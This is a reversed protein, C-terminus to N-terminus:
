DEDFSHRAARGDDRPWVAGNGLDDLVPLSAEDDLALFFSSDCNIADRLDIPMPYPAGELATEACQRHGAAVEAKVPAEREVSTM